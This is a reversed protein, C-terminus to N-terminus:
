EARTRNQDVSAIPLVFEFSAGDKGDSSATLKGGHYDINMRSIALGLGMGHPKTAVLRSPRDALKEGGIGPESDAGAAGAAKHDRPETRGRFLGTREPSTETAEFATVVLNTMVQQLQESNGYAN